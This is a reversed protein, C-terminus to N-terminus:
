LFIVFYVAQSVSICPGLIFLSHVNLFSRCHWVVRALCNKTVSLSQCINQFTSFHWVIQKERLFSFPFIVKGYDIFSNWFEESYFFDPNRPNCGPAKSLVSSVKALQGAIGRGRLETPVQTHYMNITNHGENKYLM